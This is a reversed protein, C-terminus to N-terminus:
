DPFLAEARRLADIFDLIPRSREKYAMGSAILRSPHANRSLGSKASSKRFFHCSFVRNKGKTLFLALARIM